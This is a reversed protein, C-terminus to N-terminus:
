GNKLYIEDVRKVAHLDCSRLFIIGGKKSPNPEKIEDETFYFLTQSLPLLAEKFSYNSKQDFVIEEIEKIQDYRIADTKSFTGSEPFLKPAYIENEKSWEALIQNMDEISVYYGM